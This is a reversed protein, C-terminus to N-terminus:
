EKTQTQEHLDLTKQWPRSLAQQMIISYNIGHVRGHKVLEIRPGPSGPTCCIRQRRAQGDLHPRKTHPPKGTAHHEL